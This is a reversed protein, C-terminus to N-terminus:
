HQVSNDLNELVGWGDSWVTADGTIRLGLNERLCLWVGVAIASPVDMADSCFPATLILDVYGEPALLDAAPQKADDWFLHVRVVDVPPQDQFFWRAVM